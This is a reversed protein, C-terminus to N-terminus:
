AAPNIDDPNWGKTALLDPRRQYFIAAPIRDRTRHGRHPREFNYYRLWARLDADIDEGRQYLRYRYATRYHLHVVSGEPGRRVAGRRLTAPGPDRLRGRLPRVEETIAAQRDRGAGFILSWRFM